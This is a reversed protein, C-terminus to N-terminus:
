RFETEEPEQIEMARSFYRGRREQDSLFREFRALGDGEIPAGLVKEAVAGIQILRRTRAKWDDEKKQQMLKKEQAAYREKMKRAEELREDVTRRAM